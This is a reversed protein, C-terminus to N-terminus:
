FNVTFRLGLLAGTRRMAPADETAYLISLSQGDSLRRPLLKFSAYTM